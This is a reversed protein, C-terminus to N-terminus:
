APSAAAGVGDAFSVMEFLNLGGVPSMTVGQRDVFFTGKV